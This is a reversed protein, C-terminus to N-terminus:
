TEGKIRRLADKAMDWAIRFDRKQQPTLKAVDQYMLAFESEDFGDPNSREPSLYGATKAALLRLKPIPLGLAKAVRDIKGISPRAVKDKASPSYNKELQSIFNNSVGARVALTRQSWGRTERERKILQGLTEEPAESLEV